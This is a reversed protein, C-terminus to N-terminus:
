TPIQIVPLRRHVPNIADHVPNIATSLISPQPCSQHSHVPNIATSLISPL